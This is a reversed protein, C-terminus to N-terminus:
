PTGTSTTAFRELCGVLRVLEVLQGVPGKNRSLRSLLEDQRDAGLRGFTRRDRPHLLPLLTLVWVAGRLAHRTPPPMSAQLGVLGAGPGPGPGPGPGGTATRSVAVTGPVAAALLADRWRREFELWPPRPLRRRAAVMAAVLLLDLGSLALFIPQDTDRWYKLWLLANVAKAAIVPVTMVQNRVPDLAILLCAVALGAMGAVTGFRWPAVDPAVLEVGGLWRNARSLDEVARAPAALYLIALGGFIAGLAAYTRRVPRLDRVHMGRTDAVCGGARM